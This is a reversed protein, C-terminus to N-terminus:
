SFSQTTYRWAQLGEVADSPLGAKQKLETLFDTASPLMEWVSPLYTARKGHASIILGDIDPRLQQLLEDEGSFHMEEPASLVSLHIALEPFEESGLPDFRPHDFAAAFANDAVDEILPRFAELSGICGRLAHGLHLTVFSAGQNVVSADFDTLSVSLPEDHALGHAISSRATDLLLLEVAHPISTSAM